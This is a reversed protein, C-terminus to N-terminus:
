ALLGRRDVFVKRFPRLGSHSTRRGHEDVPPHDDARLRKGGDLGDDVVLKLPFLVLPSQARALFGSAKMRLSDPDSMQRPIADASEIGMSSGDRFYSKGRERIWRSWDGTFKQSLLHTCPM